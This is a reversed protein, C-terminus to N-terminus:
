WSSKAGVAIWILLIVLSPRGIGVSSSVNGVAVAWSSSKFVGVLSPLVVILFCIEVLEPEM